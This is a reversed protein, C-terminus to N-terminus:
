FGQSDIKTKVISGSLFQYHWKSIRTVGFAMEIKTQGWRNGLVILIGIVRVGQDILFLKHINDNQGQAKYKKNNQCAGRRRNFPCMGNLVPVHWKFRACLDKLFPWVVLVVYGNLVPM